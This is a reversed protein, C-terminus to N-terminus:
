ASFLGDPKLALVPCNIQRLVTDATNGMLLDRVGVECVTGMMLVDPQVSNVSDLIVAAPYGKRFHINGPKITTGTRSLLGDLSEQACSQLFYLYKELKEPQMKESLFDEDLVEWM